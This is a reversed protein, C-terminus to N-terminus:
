ASRTIGYLFASSGSVFNPGTVPALTLSTIAATNSWLGAFAGIFAQNQTGSNTETVSTASVSKNTSGAYNPIYIEANGFTSSTASASNCFIAGLYAGSNAYSTAGASDGYLMRESYNTSAGNLTLRVTEAHVARDTRLSCVVLLDTHTGPIDSFAISSASAGLTTKAILKCTTPM